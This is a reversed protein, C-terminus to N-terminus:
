AKGPKEFDLFFKMLARYEDGGRCNEVVDLIDDCLTHLGSQGLPNEESPPHHKVLGNGMDKRLLELLFLNTKPKAMIM